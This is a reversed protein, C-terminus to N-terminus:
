KGERGKYFSFAMGMGKEDRGEIQGLKRKRPPAEWGRRGWNKNQLIRVSSNLPVMLNESANILAYVLIQYSRDLFDVQLVEPIYM